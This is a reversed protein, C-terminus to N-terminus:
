FALLKLIEVKVCPIHLIEQNPEYREVNYQDNDPCDNSNDFIFRAPM